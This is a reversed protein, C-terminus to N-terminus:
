FGVEFGMWVSACDDKVVAKVEVGEGFVGVLATGLNGVHHGVLDIAVVGRM